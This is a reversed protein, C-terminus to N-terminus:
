LGFRERAIGVIDPDSGYGDVTEVTGDATIFAFTDQQTVEFRTYVAGDVDAIHPFGQVDADEVFARMEDVSGSLGAVGVFTVSDGLEVAAANVGEAGRKCVPCWPAWFWLVAPKGSLSAGDFQAGTVTEATFDLVDPVAEAAPPPTSAPATTMPEVTPSSSPGPGAVTASPEPEGGGCSALVVATSVALVFALTQRPM